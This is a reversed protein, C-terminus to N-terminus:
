STAAGLLRLVLHLTSEKKIDYDKVTGNELQKGGFILRQHEAKIGTKEYIKDKVSDITDFTEVDLTMTQGTLSKVFIQMRVNWYNDLTREVVSSIALWVGQLFLEIYSINSWNCSDM